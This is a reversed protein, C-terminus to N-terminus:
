ILVGAALLDKNGQIALLRKREPGALLDNNPAGLAGQLNVVVGLVMKKSQQPLFEFPPLALIALFAASNRTPAATKRDPGTQASMFGPSWPSPKYMPLGM